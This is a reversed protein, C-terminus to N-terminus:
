SFIQDNMKSVVKSNHSDSLHAYRKVMQLTKHGLIDAIEALTGGSMALYSAASHRLDHFRFDEIEAIELAKEWAARITTPSKKNRKGPFLLDSDIRRIQSLRQIIEHAHGVLPISRIEDNKTDFLTIQGRKLNVQKWKLTLIESQRAGTSLALVVIPYLSGNEVEQCALLLRKREDDSLFRVRGRPEKCKRVKRMPSDDLWEWENVAVTFCHSLAALYRNATSPSRKTGMHTKDEQLMDRHEAILSPTADALLYGGIKEKWWELQPKQNSQNKGKKPLVTKIYRDLMEGVTHRKSEVTKFHRGDRIASETDQAWKKADTKREFTASQTPHGKLRIQVRYRTKGKKDTRAEIHAM